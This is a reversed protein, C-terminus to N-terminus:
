NYIFKPNFNFFARLANCNLCDAQNFYYMSKFVFFRVAALFEHSFSKKLGKFLLMKPLVKSFILFLTSTLSMVSSFFNIFYLEFDLNM